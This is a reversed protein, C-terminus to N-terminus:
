AANYAFFRGVITLDQEYQTASSFRQATADSIGAGTQFQFGLLLVGLVVPIGMLTVLKWWRGGLNRRDLMVLIGLACLGTGLAIWMGRGVTLMFALGALVLVIWAIWRKYMKGEYLLVAAAVLIGMPLMVGELRAVRYFAGSVALNVMALFEILYEFGIIGSSVLVMYLFLSVRQPNFYWTVVFFLAYYLPYRVSRLMESTSQGYVQGLVVSLVILGLFVFMPRDLQTHRHWNWRGALLWTLGALGGVVVLLGEYFQFDMPLVLYDEYFWSPVVAASFCLYLVATTVSGFLAVVSFLVMVVITPLMDDKFFPLAILLM